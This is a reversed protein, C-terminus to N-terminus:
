KSLPKLEGGELKTAGIMKPEETWEGEEKTMSVIILENEGFWRGFGLLTGILYIIGKSVRM